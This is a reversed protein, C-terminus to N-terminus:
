RPGGIYPRDPHERNWRDVFVQPIARPISKDWGLGRMFESLDSRGAYEGSNRRAAYATGAARCADCRCRGKTYRSPTGHESIASM